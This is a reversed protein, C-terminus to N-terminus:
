PGPGGCFDARSDGPTLGLTVDSLVHGLSLGPPCWGPAMQGDKRPTLPRLNFERAPADRRKRGERM